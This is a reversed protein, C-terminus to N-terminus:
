FQFRLQKAFHDNLLNVTAIMLCFVPSPAKEQWVLGLLGMGEGQGPGSVKAKGTVSPM